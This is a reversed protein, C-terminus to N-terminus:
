KIRDRRFGPTENTGTAQFMWCSPNTKVALARAARLYGPKGLRAIWLRNESFALMPLDGPSDGIALFPKRGISELIAAVKGSYTPVPFQFRSTLRFRAIMKEDLAAYASNERVLLWDKFLNGEADQLLTSIGIVHDANLGPSLGRARLLPNLADLVMWRVSWVNSASVVWVDFHLRLLEAILEVIEPYFFPAAYGTKGATVEIIPAAAMDKAVGNTWEFAARASRVIDLPRLGAMVEVAWAYGNALPSRDRRANPIPALLAEYYETVDACEAMRVWGVKPVSFSACLHSNVTSPTLTGNRALVALTAEGIDGCVITNDFDFVVPLQMGAGQSLLGELAERTQRNWGAEELRCKAAKAGGHRKVRRGKDREAMNGISAAGHHGSSM